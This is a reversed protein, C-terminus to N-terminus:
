TSANSPSVTAAFIACARRSPLRRREPTVMSLGRLYFWEGPKMADFVAQCQKGLRKGDRQQDFTAGQGDFPVPPRWDLLSPQDWM